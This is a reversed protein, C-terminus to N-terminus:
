KKVNKEEMKQRMKEITKRRINIDYYVKKKLM